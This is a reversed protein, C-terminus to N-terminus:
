TQHLNATEKERRLAAKEMDEILKNLDLRQKSMIQDFQGLRAAVPGADALEKNISKFQKTLANVSTELSTLQESLDSLTTKNKRQQEDLWELRKTIQEFEM